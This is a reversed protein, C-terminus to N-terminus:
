GPNSPEIRGIKKAKLRDATKQFKESALLKDTDLVTYGQSNTTAFTEQGYRPGTPIGLLRRLWPVYRLFFPRSM